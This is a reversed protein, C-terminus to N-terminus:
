FSDTWHCDPYKSCGLFLGNRGSKLAIDGGCRPCTLRLDQVALELVRRPISMRGDCNSARYSACGWFPGYKGPRLETAGGCRPCIPFGMRKKLATALQDLRRKQVEKREEQQLLYATGSLEMLRAVFDPQSFRIMMESSRSHSLINLSGFWAIKRDVFALKEHLERRQLVKVGVRSIQRILDQTTSDSQNQARTVVLVPVGRDTLRRLVNVVEALRREAIFPSFVVVQESAGRLDKLFAPYFNGENFLTAGEPYGLWRHVPGVAALTTDVAPDAYDQLVARADMITGCRELHRLLTALSGDRLAKQSLYDHHAVVVLKGKARTCAVNLLRMAASGWGGSLLRGIRFPPSDVLDFIIIDKENGQFRHVTAAEVADRPIGYQKIMQEMLYLFLRTQARYPTVLGVTKAGTTLAQAALRVCVVASYINYRSGGPDLRACWPNACSTTCLVLPQDPVPHAATAHSYNQPQAKHDLPNGDHAYVLANALGGIAEHMRYQETLACLRPDDLKARDKVVGAQEFIDAQLWKAALPYENKDQATAIPPLQRFDGTVVVRSSARTAAFWLNPLPVMSAEDVIVTDFTARYLEELIVLRFLTAGVVKAERIVAAPMNRLQVDIAALEDGLEKLNKEIEGLQQRLEPLPPLPGLRELAQLAKAQHHQAESLAVSAARREQEANQFVSQLHAITKEQAGIQRRIAEPNLGFFVRRILGASEAQQLKSRLEDLTRRAPPIADQADHLRQEAKAFTDKASAVRRESEEVAKILGITTALQDRLKSVRERQDELEARKRRLGESKRELVEELTVQQLEMDQRALSGVRVVAGAKIESDDLAGIVPMLATDVAVNTHSTVLVRDGRQVLERVLAGITRTKGTGPPGWIFTVRQGLSRNLAEFQGRNLGAPETAPVESPFSENPKFAFLRLAMDREAPLDGALTEDLRRKLLELLYYASFSLIARPITPGLDGQLALTIEFGQVSVVLAEHQDRGVRLQAPTDSPVNLETDLLFVYNFRGAAKGIYSGDHVGIQDTGGSKKIAQIEEDLAGVLEATIADFITAM